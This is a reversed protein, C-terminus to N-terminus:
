FQLTVQAGTQVKQLCTSGPVRVERLRRRFVALIGHSSAVDGSIVEAGEELVRRAPGTLEIVKVNIISDITDACTVPWFVELDVGTQELIM